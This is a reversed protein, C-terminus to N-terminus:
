GRNLVECSSVDKVRFGAQFALVAQRSSYVQSAFGLLVLHIGPKWSRPLESPAFMYLVAKNVTAIM